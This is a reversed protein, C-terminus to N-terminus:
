NGIPVRTINLVRYVPYEATYTFTAPFPRVVKSTNRKRSTTGFRAFSQSELYTQIDTKARPHIECPYKWKDDGYDNNKEDNEELM